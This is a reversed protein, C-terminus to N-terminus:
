EFFLLFFFIYFMIQPSFGHWNVNINWEIPLIDEVLLHIDHHYTFYINKKQILFFFFDQPGLLALMLMVSKETM